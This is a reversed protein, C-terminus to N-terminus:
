DTGPHLIEELTRLLQDIDIPKMVHADMGAASAMKRDEEFANATMAIIPIRRRLSDPLGRIKRAAEYGNMVPMQIDMLVAAYYGPEAEEIMQVAISGNEAEEIEYGANRLIECALMRNLPMDDVLLLRKRDAAAVGADRGGANRASIEAPVEKDEEAPAFSVRVTFETGEGPRSSVLITGKMLDLLRRTISMGLGTGQIGSVTSSREREFADFIRGAFEESMGIGTDSVRIEYTGKGAQEDPLQTVKLSIKGGEPTFKVANSILNVLIQTLRLKDCYVRDHRIEETDVTFNLGKEQTQHIFFTQLERFIDRLSCPAEDLQIKGSEIRSMELVDNILELLHNSSILIKNLYDHVKAPQDENQLALNAFGIVANMPTRIDHSMNSLFVSKAANAAREEELKRRGEKTFLRGLIVLLIIIVLLSSILFYPILQPMNNWGGEPEVTLHWLDNPVEIPVDIRRSFDGEHCKLIFGQDDTLIHETDDKWVAFHYTIDEGRQHLLEQVFSDWDLVVIALAAFVEEGAEQRFIPNRIIFGTGGEVLAHPGAVTIKGSEIAKNTAEAQDPDKRPDFGITAAAVEEPYACSIVGGPALYLSGIVEDSAMIKECTGSFHAIFDDSYELYLIELTETVNLYKNLLLEIKAAVTEAYNEADYRKSRTIQRNVASLFIIQLLLFGILIGCIQRWYVRRM